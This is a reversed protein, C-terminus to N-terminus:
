LGDIVQIAIKGLVGGESLRSFSKEVDRAEAESFIPVQLGDVLWAALQELDARKSEVVILECRQKSFLCQLKGAVFSPSPLTTIFTGDTALVRKCASFAYLGTTDFIAAYPEADTFPDTTKRDIVHDAGLGRVFDIAYGSCVGTVECGLRKAIGVALSGVGGSAGVVLVRPAGQLDAKAFAQLATLGVTAASAAVSHPITDPKRAVNQAEITIQEAFTGQRQKSGYALHGFVMDGVELDVGEGVADVEGSFDFGPILPDVKAHIFRAAFDGNVVKMDAANVSSAHVRVRVQGASAVPDAVEIVEM